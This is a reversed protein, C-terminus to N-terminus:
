CRTRRSDVDAGPRGPQVTSEEEPLNADRPPEDAFRFDRVHADFPDVVREVHPVEEWAAMAERVADEQADTFPEGDDTALVVRGFGGAASPIEEGLQALVKEFGTGPISVQSTLPRGITAALTGLVALIVVWAAVVRWSHNAAWRGLRYLFTSM